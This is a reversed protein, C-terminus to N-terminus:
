MSRRPQHGDRADSNRVHNGHPKGSRLPRSQEPLPAEVAAPHAAPPTPTGNATADRTAQAARQALERPNTTVLEHERESREVHLAVHAGRAFLLGEGKNCGLIFTREGQSLHFASTVSQITSSDQKMLFKISANVLVTRGYESGLFDEVDQTITVLGLFYKRARRAMDSLFRGGEPHQMLTWAEDIYLLRPQRARERRMRTWVFDAIMFLGIPRLESDMERINFVIFPNDLAVNTPADFIQAMSGTTYRQLRDGLHFDDPGCAGSSLVAYVDRLLPAPRTHTRPAATIGAQRYTEFLVKELFSKERQSLTSARGQIHDALLLDLFTILSLIKEALPDGRDTEDDVGGGERTPVFLDFPNLRQPSGPRLHITQGGVAAALRAWENEPDIVCIATGTMASRLAQIKCAYSKGAGSKAFVVQNANELEPSFPDLIVLGGSGDIGYLIGDPMSLNASAFPFATAVSSSDLLRTRRWRDRAEPLCAGFAVDQEFTAPHAILLLADLAARVQAVREELARESPARITLYLAVAFIKEDGRQLHDRLREVDQYALTREPDAMRGNRVELIESARYESLQRSLRRIMLAPDRPLLHITLELPVDITILQAIWGPYVYRPYGVVALVRAFEGDFQLSHPTVEAAAPALIDALTLVNTADGEASTTKDLAAIPWPLWRRWWPRFPQREDVAEDTAAADPDSESPLPVDTSNQMRHARWSRPARAQIPMQTAAIIAPAIPHQIAHQPMLCSHYLNVLDSGRLRRIDLGVRALQRAVEHTRLDLQQRAVAQWQLGTTMDATDRGALFRRIDQFLRTVDMQESAPTAPIVLYYHRELLRRRTALTRVFAITDETLELLVSSAPAPRTGQHRAAHTHLQRLYPDLDLPLVRVLIQLPFTQASLFGLYSTIIAEQEEASRLMYNLPTVELIACFHDTARPLTTGARPTGICLTDDGVVAWAGVFHQQTSGLRVFRQQAGAVPRAQKAM